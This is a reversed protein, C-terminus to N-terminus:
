AGVAGGWRSRTRWRWLLGVATAALGTALGVWLGLAGWGMGFALVCGVPLGVAWHGVLNAVLSSVTEGLGRLVGALTVQAGDFLQFFGAVLLLQRALATVEADLQFAGLIVRWGLVMVVASTAMCGVGLGVASWGALRAGERDGRGIAQGVRVTGAASIGMPVMFAFSAIQLVVQHAAAPVAGLRAALVTALSFVGGEFLLQMGAPGGLRALARLSPGHPAFSRWWHPHASVTWALLSALMFVRSLNTAWASGVIGLAPAGLRGQILAYCALANIVNAVLLVVTGPGTAGVAQLTQRLAIFLLAPPLSWAVTKLYRSALPVLEPAAGLRHMHDSALLLVATLPISIATALWLGQVAYRAVDEDRRAGYAVSVEHDLGMLLGIGFLFALGFLSSALGVAGVANRGLAGVMATDVLSMLMVGLQGLVVPWALRFTPRWHARLDGVRLPPLATM